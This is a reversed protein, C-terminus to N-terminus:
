DDVVQPQVATTAVAIGYCTSEKWCGTRFSDDPSIRWTLPSPVLSRLNLHKPRRAKERQVLDNYPAYGVGSSKLELEQEEELRKVQESLWFKVSSIHELGNIYLADNAQMTTHKIETSIVDLRRQLTLRVKWRDNIRNITHRRKDGDECDGFINELLFPGDHLRHSIRAATKQLKDITKCPQLDKARQILFAVDEAKAHDPLDLMSAPLAGCNVGNLLIHDFFEQKGCCQCLRLMWEYTFTNLREKIRGIQEIVASGVEWDLRRCCDQLLALFIGLSPSWGESIMNRYIHMATLRTFFKMAGIILSEYVQGNMRAKEAAKHSNTGFILYREKVISHISYEPHALALGGRHGEMRSWYQFYQTRDGTATYYRLLTAHTIENPRIHSERMSTLVASVLDKKELMCFRVLLMNYTRTNPPTQAALLNYCLKSMLDNLRIESDMLALLKQLSLNLHTRKEAEEATAVEYAPFAPAEFKEYYRRDRSDAHLTRLRERTYELRSEVTEEQLLKRLLFDTRPEVRTQLSNKSCYLLLKLVMKAVSWELTRIKKMSFPYMSQEDVLSNYDPGGYFRRFLRGDSLLESLQAKSLSKLLSLPPGKWDQFGSADRIKHQEQAWDFVDLWTDSTNNFILGRTDQEEFQQSDWAEVDNFSTATSVDNEAARARDLAEVKADDSLAALRSQQQLETAEVTARAEAIVKDWQKRRDEKKRSDAFALGAAISSLSATFVDGVRLSRRATATTARRAIANPTRLCSPCNCICQAQAVRSWVAQM